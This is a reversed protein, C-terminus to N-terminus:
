GVATRAGHKAAADRCGACAGCAWDMRPTPATCVSAAITATRMAVSGRGTPYVIPLRLTGRRTLRPTGNASAVVPTLVVAAAALKLVGRRSLGQREM